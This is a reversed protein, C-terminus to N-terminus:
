KDHGNMRRGELTERKVARVRKHMKTNRKPAQGLGQRTSLRMLRQWRGDPNLLTVAIPSLM